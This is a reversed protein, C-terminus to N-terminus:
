EALVQQLRNLFALEQQKETTRSDVPPRQDRDGGHWAQINQSFSAKPAGAKEIEEQLLQQLHPIQALLANVDAPRYSEVLDLLDAADSKTYLDRAPAITLYRELINRRGENEWVARRAIATLLSRDESPTAEILQMLPKPVAADLRLRHVYREITVERLPVIHTRHDPTILQAHTPRAAIEKVLPTWRERPISAAGLLEAFIAQDALRPTFLPSLILDIEYDELKPLEEALFAGVADHEVNHAGELHKAVQATLERPQELQAAIAETLTTTM